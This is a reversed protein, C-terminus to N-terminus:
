PGGQAKRGVDIIVKGLQKQEHTMVPLARLEDMHQLRPLLIDKLQEGRSDMLHPMFAAVKSTQSIYAWEINAKLYYFLERMSMIWNVKEPQPPRSRPKEHDWILPCMVKASMQIPVDDVNEEIDFIVYVQNHDWDLNWGVKICGWSALLGDIEMKSRERSLESRKYHILPDDSYVKM